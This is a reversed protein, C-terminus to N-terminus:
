GSGDPSGENLIENRYDRGLEVDVVRSEFGNVLDHSLEIRRKDELRVIASVRWESGDWPRHKVEFEEDERSAKGKRRPRGCLSIYLAAHWSSKGSENLGWIINFGPTLELTQGSFPGFAQAQVSEFRV